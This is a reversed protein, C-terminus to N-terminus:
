NKSKIVIGVIILATGILALHISFIGTMSFFRPLIRQIMFVATPGDAGGIIGISSSTGAFRVIVLIARIVFSIVGAATLIIGSILAINDLNLSSNNAKENM